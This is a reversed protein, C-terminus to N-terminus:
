EVEETSFGLEGWRTEPEEAARANIKRLTDNYPRFVVNAYSFQIDSIFLTPMMPIAVNLILILVRKRIHNTDDM